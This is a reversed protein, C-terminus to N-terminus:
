ILSTEWVVAGKKEKHGSLSGLQWQLCILLSQSGHVM